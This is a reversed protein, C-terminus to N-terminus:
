FLTGFVEQGKLPDNGIYFDPVFALSLNADPDHGPALHAPGFLPQLEKLPSGKVTGIWRVDYKAHLM